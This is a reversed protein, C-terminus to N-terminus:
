SSLNQLVAAALDKRSIRTMDLFKMLAKVVPGVSKTSPRTIGQENVVADIASRLDDDSYLSPLYSNIMGLEGTEKEIIRVIDETRESNDRRLREYEAIAKQWRESCARLVGIYEAESHEPSSPKSKEYNILQSQLQRLLSSKPSDKAKMANMLDKQLRQRIPLTSYQRRLLVHSRLLM